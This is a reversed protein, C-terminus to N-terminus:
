GFNQSLLSIEAHYVTQYLKQQVM